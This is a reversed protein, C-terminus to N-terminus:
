STSESKDTAFLVNLATQLKKLTDHNLTYCSKTGQKEFSLIGADKLVCLHQSITSQSQSFGECLDACCCAEMEVLEKVMRLRVPHGLAKLADATDSTSPINSQLINMVCM